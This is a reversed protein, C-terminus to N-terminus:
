RFVIMLPRKSRVAVKRAQDLDDYFWSKDKSLKFKDQRVAQNRKNQASASSVLMLSAVLWLSWHKSM